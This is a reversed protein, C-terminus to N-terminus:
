SSHYYAAQMARLRRRKPAGSPIKAEAAAKKAGKKPGTTAGDEDATDQSHADDMEIASETESENEHKDNQKEDEQEHETETDAEEPEQTEAEGEDASRKRKRGRASKSMLGLVIRHSLGFMAPGSQCRAKGRLETLIEQRLLGDSFEISRHLRCAIFLGARSCVVWLLPLCIVSNLTRLAAPHNELRKLLKNNRRTTRLLRSITAQSSRANSRTTRTSPRCTTASASRSVVTLTSCLAM